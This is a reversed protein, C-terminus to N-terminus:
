CSSTRPTSSSFRGLFCNCPTLQTMHTSPEDYAANVYRITLAISKPAKFPDTWQDLMGYITSIYRDSDSIIPFEIKLNPNPHHAIVDEIWAKHTEVSDVSMAAVKCDLAELEKYKMALSGLETTCVPTFDAPHSFLIAWKGEKWKHFNMPGQTTEADFDPVENGLRLVSSAPTLPTDDVNYM